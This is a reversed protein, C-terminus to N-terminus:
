QPQVEKLDKKIVEADYGLGRINDAAKEAKAESTYETRYEGTTGYMVVIYKMTRGGKMRGRDYPGYSAIGM